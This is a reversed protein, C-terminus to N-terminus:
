LNLSEWKRHGTVGKRERDPIESGKRHDGVGWRRGRHIGVFDFKNSEVVTVVLRHASGSKKKQTGSRCQTPHLPSLIIKGQGAKKPM